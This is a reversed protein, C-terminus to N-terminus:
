YFTYKVEIGATRPKVRADILSGLFDRVRGTVTDKDFLNQVWLSCEWHSNDRYNLRVNVLERSPINQTVPDNVPDMFSKGHFSYEGYFDLKGGLSPMPMGYNVTLASTFSPAYPLRHGTCDVTPSCTDFNKFYAKVLGFNVGIDLQRSARLTLSADLGRSEAEAANRLEISTAGGGLDVFQFVQFNKFRSTYAALDYRLCGGLLTGKTGVEYSEATENDFSPKNVGNTSLFETNWGGSKFGRSYKAYINQNQSVAYTAGITPSIYKESRSDRYGTLSGIGFTSSASGDLNFLVDKMEHTYRTGLNLMLSEAIDYDLAGFLAYTDTKVEGDNSVVAGPVAGAVVTFLVPVPILPHRVLTTGADLGITAKRDTRARENLHYLGAVYRVGGKNPSAIRVEESSLRFDDVYFTRLLDNPGYDNDTQKEQHTDRYGAIATLVHGSDMTYTATVNGGSLDVTETPTTNFNVTRKPLIGGQLPLEFLDSTPEGLTLKQKTNSSDASISIKLKDTPLILIQGRATQRKLDDLKGGDYLNTITGDRMESAVSIKGLVKESIPGSVAAYGEHAGHGGVVGRLYGERESTPSRTTIIVAGAVTNRGSLHGQPGRLVEVQEVDFLPQRLAQAQGLTVGDLYVGVRPDFGINRGGGGVGRITLVNYGAQNEMSFSPVQQQIDELSGARANELDDRGLVTMSIPVDQAFQPRKQAFVVITDLVLPEAEGSDTSAPVPMIPQADAYGVALSLALAILSKV